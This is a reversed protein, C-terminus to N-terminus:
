YDRTRKLYVYWAGSGGHSQIAPVIKLVIERLPPMAMWQPFKQRLIGEGGRGKGTIVLLCRKNRAHARTIYSNLKGHAEEQTMGHLDLTGDLAVQGRRLRQELRGDLQPAQQTASPKKITPPLNPEAAKKRVAARKLPALPLSDKPLPSRKKVPVIDHTYDQWLRTEENDPRDQGSNGSKGTGRAM